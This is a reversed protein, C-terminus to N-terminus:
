VYSGLVLIHSREGRTGLLETTLANWGSNQFTMPEVGEDLIQSSLVQENM